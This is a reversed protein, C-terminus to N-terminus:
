RRPGGGSKSAAASAARTRSADSEAKPGRKAGAGGRGNGTRKSTPLPAPPAGLPNLWARLAALAADGREVIGLVDGNLREKDRADLAAPTTVWVPISRTAEDAKLRAAVDFGDTDPLLVDLLILDPKVDKALRHGSAGDRAAVVRFGEPELLERYRAEATPDADIVLATVVRSKVKTTFTLRGLSKLLNERAVPKVFYDVAGLALGLPRNDIVTVVLVPIVRTRDDQKLRQLVEWGDTDPLLIDLVIADPALGIAWALGELGSATVAVAYGAAELYLRLLEAAGPDDEIVLVRPRTDGTAVQPAPRPAEVAGRAPLHVTFASGVGMTSALEIRGGHAQVLRRTLALGLGTGETKSGAKRGGQEFAEFIRERDEEPIGPGTDSVVFWATDDTRGVTVRVAGFDPTFKVANSLLNFAVQRIRAPDATITLDVDGEVKLSLHKRDALPRMTELTQELLGTLGFPVPRLELRGSEVKALDLVENILELLHLGSEHIHTGYERVTARDLGDPDPDLLLESFGIVANLPTRLEHSMSALFDSKAASAAQLERILRERENALEEREASKVARDALLRLLQVDDQVFLPHGVIELELVGSRWRESPLPIEIRRVEQGATAGATASAVVRSTGTVGNAAPALRVTAARAGSASVATRALVQWIPETAGPPVQNLQRIFEFSISQQTLRQLIAPPSFAALYGLAALMAIVFVAVVVLTTGGGATALSGAFLAVIALGFLGTAAAAIALRARSSGDRRAAERAFGFAARAELGAFYVVMAGFLAIGTAPSATRGSVAVVLSALNLGVYGVTAAALLSRSVPRFQHVLWLALLPQALFSPLTVVGEVRQLAPFLTGLGGVGLAVALSGFVLAVALSVREPRRLYQRLTVLFVLVYTVDLIASLVGSLTM